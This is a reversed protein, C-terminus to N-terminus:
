AGGREPPAPPPPPAPNPPARPPPLHRFPLRAGPFEGGGGTGSPPRATSRSCSGHATTRRRSYISSGRGRRWYGGPASGGSAHAAADRIWAAIRATEEHRPVCGHEERHLAPSSRNMWAGDDVETGLSVVPEHSADDLDVDSISLRRSPCKGVGCRRAALVAWGPGPGVWIRRGPKKRVWRASKRCGPCQRPPHGDPHRPPFRGRGAVSHISRGRTTLTPYSVERGAREHTDWACSLSLAWAKRRRREQWVLQRRRPDIRSRGSRRCRPRRRLARPTRTM